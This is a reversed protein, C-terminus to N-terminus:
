KVEVKFLFRSGKAARWWDLTTAFGSDGVYEQLEGVKTIEKVYAITVNGLRQWNYYSGYVALDRGIRRMKPRLTYVFGADLLQQRAEAVNFFIM